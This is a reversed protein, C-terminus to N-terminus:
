KQDREPTPLRSTRRRFIGQKCPSRVLLDMLMFTSSWLIGFKILQPTTISCRGQSFAITKLISEQLVSQPKRIQEIMLFLSQIRGIVHLGLGRIIIKRFSLHSKERTRVSQRALWYYRPHTNSNMQRTPAPTDSLWQIDSPKSSQQNYM